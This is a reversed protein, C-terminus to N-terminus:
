KKRRYVTKRETSRSRVAVREASYQLRYLGRNGVNRRATFNYKKTSPPLPHHNGPTQIKHASTESCVEMIKICTGHMKQKENYGVLAWNYFYIGCFHRQTIKVTNHITHEKKQPIGRRRFKIYRRKPVYQEMIKICTGRM